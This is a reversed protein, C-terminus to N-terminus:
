AQQLDGIPLHGDSVFAMNKHGRSNNREHMILEVHNDSKSSTEKDVQGSRIQKLKYHCCPLFIIIRMFLAFWPIPLSWFTVTAMYKTPDSQWWYSAGKMTVHSVALLLCAFGVYSQICRWERWNMARGISPISTVGILGMSAITLVGLLVCTEGIWNMRSSSGIKIDETSNGPVITSTTSYWKGYYAPSLLVTSMVMHVVGFLLAYLGLQKRMKLWGDLFPNFRKNKTGWCLQTLAAFSGPLYVFALLTFSMCAMVKNITNTPLREWTYPPSKLYYYRLLALSMWGIFMILVVLTPAGWGPFLQRNRKELTMANELGGANVPIFGLRSALQMVISKAVPDDGCVQVLATNEVDHELNYASVNNFAKVVHSSPFMASLKEANSQSDAKTANSVDILIKGRLMDDLSKLSAHHQAQMAFFIIDCTKVCEDTTALKVKDPKLGNLVHQRKDPKRSGITVHLGSSSLRCAVARAFDGTGLIGVSTTAAMETNSDM